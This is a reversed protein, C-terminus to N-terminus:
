SYINKQLRDFNMLLKTLQNDGEAIDIPFECNNAPIYMDVGRKLLMCAMKICTSKPLALQTTGNRLLFITKCITYLATEGQDNEKDIHNLNNCRPIASEIDWEIFHYSLIKKLVAIALNPAKIIFDCQCVQTLLPNTDIELNLYSVYGDCPNNGIVMNILGIIKDTNDDSPNKIYKLLTEKEKKKDRYIEADKNKKFWLM